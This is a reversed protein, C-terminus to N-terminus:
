VVRNPKLKKPLRKWITDWAQTARPPDTQLWNRLTDFGIRFWSKRRFGHKARPIDGNPKITNACAQAWAVALTVVAILLSLKEPRTLRTDEMNFGRTKTHAFLCEIQWRKRYSNLATKSGGNTVVVILTGRRRKAAFRLTGAFREDMGEFRGQLTELRGLYRHRTLSALSMCRGDDLAVILREPARIVFPIHKEVLFEIWQNGIFERDALLVEISDAGFLAIFRSLLAQRQAMTSPGGHDLMDWLVPIRARRTTICLVLLNIDRTGVKWNTRDLCLRYPPALRLMTVVAKALWDEDLRVYQFFRQLRRYSSAVLAAGGVQSAIHSLNVTRANLVGVILMALTQCRDNSLEVHRSLTLALADPSLSM